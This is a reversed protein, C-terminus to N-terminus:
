KEFTKQCNREFEKLLEQNFRNSNFWKNCKQYKLEYLGYLKMKRRPDIKSIKNEKDLNEPNLENLLKGVITKASDQFSGHATYFAQQIQGLYNELSTADTDQAELYTGILKRITKTEVSESGILITNIDNILKNLIDFITNISDALRQLLEVSNLEINSVDRGILLVYLDTLIKKELDKTFIDNEKTGNETSIGEPKFRGVLLKLIEIKQADETGDTEQELLQEILLDAREPSRSYIEEIQRCLRNIRSNSDM